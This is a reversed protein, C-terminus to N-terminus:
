QIFNIRFFDRFVDPVEPVTIGYFQSFISRKENYETLARILLFLIKMEFLM